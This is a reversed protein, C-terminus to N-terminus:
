SNNVVLTPNSFSSYEVMNAVLGLRSVWVFNRYSRVSYFSYRCNTGGSYVVTSTTNAPLNQVKTGVSGTNNSRYLEFGSENNSNDTWGLVGIFQGGTYGQWLTNMNSPASITAFVSSFIGTGLVVVLGLLFKRM